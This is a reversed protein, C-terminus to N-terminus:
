VKLKDSAVSHILNSDIALVSVEFSIHYDSCKTKILHHEAYQFICGFTIAM